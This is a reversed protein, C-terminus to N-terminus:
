QVKQRNAIAEFIKVLRGSSVDSPAVGYTTEVRRWIDTADSEDMPAFDLVDSEDTILYDGPDLDFIASMFHAAMDSYGDVLDTSSITIKKGETSDTALFKLRKGM